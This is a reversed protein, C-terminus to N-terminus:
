CSLTVDPPLRTLRLLKKLKSGGAALISSPALIPCGRALHLDRMVGSLLRMMAM